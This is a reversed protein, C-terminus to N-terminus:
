GSGNAVLKTGDVSVHGLLVLGMDLAIRVTEEFAKRVADRNNRRFRAITRFDPRSMEALYMFRVDQGLAADLKRSSRIGQCYGFIIVKLMMRPEYAPAGGGSYKGVLSSLDMWDIIEDLARVPDDGSVFDNVCPPLLM